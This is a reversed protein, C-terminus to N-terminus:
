RLLLFEYLYIAASISNLTPKSNINVRKLTYGTQHAHVLQKRISRQKRVQALRETGILRQRLGYTRVYKEDCRSPTLVHM